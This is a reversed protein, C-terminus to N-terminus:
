PIIANSQDPYGPGVPQREFPSYVKGLSAALGVLEVETDDSPFPVFFHANIAVQAKKQLLFGLTTQRVTDRGGGPPTLKFALGPAALDVLVVHSRLHVPSTDSRTVLTVGRFPRTVSEAADAPAGRGIALALLQALAHRLPIM